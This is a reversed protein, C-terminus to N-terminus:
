GHPTYFLTLFRESAPACPRLPSELCSQTGRPSASASTGLGSGPSLVASTAGSAPQLWTEPMTMPQEAAARRMRARTLTHVNKSIDTTEFGFKPCNNERIWYVVYLIYFTVDSCGTSQCPVNFSILM